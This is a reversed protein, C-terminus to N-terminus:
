FRVVQRTGARDIRRELVMAALGHLDALPIGARHIKTPTQFNKTRQPSCKNTGSDGGEFSSEAIVGM